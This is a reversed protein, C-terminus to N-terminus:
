FVLQKDLLVEITSFWALNYLYITLNNIRILECLEAFTREINWAVPIFAEAAKRILFQKCLKIEASHAPPILCLFHDQVKNQSKM